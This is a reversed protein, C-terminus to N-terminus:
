KKKNAGDLYIKTNEDFKKYKIKLKVIVTTIDFLNLIKGSFVDHQLM